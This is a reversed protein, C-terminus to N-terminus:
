VSRKAPHTIGVGLTTTDGIARLELASVKEQAGAFFVKVTKGRMTVDRVLARVLARPEADPPVSLPEQPTM